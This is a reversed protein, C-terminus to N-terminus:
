KGEQDKIFVAMFYLPKGSTDFAPPYESGLLNYCIVLKGSDCKYIATFHKGSNVGEKGYIDMRNDAYKVIGRDPSDAQYIYTSDEIILKQHRFTEEPISRGGIEQKVPIWTGKLASSKNQGSNNCGTYSIVIILSSILIISKM